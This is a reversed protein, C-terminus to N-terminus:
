QPRPTIVNGCFWPHDLHDSPSAHCQEWPSRSHLDKPLMKCSMSTLQMYTTAMNINEKFHYQPCIFNLQKNLQRREGDLAPITDWSLNRRCYMFIQCSGKGSPRFDHWSLWASFEAVACSFKWALNFVHITPDLSERWGWWIAQIPLTAQGDTCMWIFVVANNTWMWDSLQVFARNTSRQSAKSCFNLTGGVSNKPFMYTINM